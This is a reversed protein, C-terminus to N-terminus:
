GDAVGDNAEERLAESAPVIPMPRVSAMRALWPLAAAPIHMETCSLGDAGFTSLLTVGNAAQRAAITQVRTGNTVHIQARTM